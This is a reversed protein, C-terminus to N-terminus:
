NQLLDFHRDKYYPFKRDSSVLTLHETIAQAILMRDFPDEHPKGEIVPHSLRDLTEIHETKVELIRVEWEHIKSLVSALDMEFGIKGLHRLIVIERLTEVSVYVPVNSDYIDDYV